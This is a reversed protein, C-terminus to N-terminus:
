ESGAHLCVANLARTEIPTAPFRRRTGIARLLNQKMVLRISFRLRKHTDRRWTKFTSHLVCYGISAAIANIKYLPAVSVSYASISSPRLLLLVAVAARGHLGCRVSLLISSIFARLKHIDVAAIKTATPKAPLAHDCLVMSDFLVTVVTGASGLTVLLVTVLLVSTLGGTTTALGREELELSVVVVL